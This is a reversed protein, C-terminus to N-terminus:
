TVKKRKRKRGGNKNKQGLAIMSNLVQQVQEKENEVEELEENVEKIEKKLRDIEGLHKQIEYKSNKVTEQEKLVQEKLHILKQENNKSASVCQTYKRQLARNSEEGKEKAEALSTKEKEIKSYARTILTLKKVYDNQLNKMEKIKTDWTQIKTNLEKNQHNLHQNQQNLSDGM